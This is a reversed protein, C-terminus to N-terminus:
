SEGYSNSASITAYVSDGLGLDFPSVQLSLLPIQCELSGVIISDTGDCSVAEEYFTDGSSKIKIRYSSIPDGHAAPAVWNVM